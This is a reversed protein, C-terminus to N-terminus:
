PSGATDRKHADHRMLSPNVSDIPRPIWFSGVTLLDLLRLRMLVKLNTVMLYEFITLM